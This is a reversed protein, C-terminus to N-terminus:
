QPSYHNYSIVRSIRWQGDELLWLHTFTAASTLEDSKGPYRAYFRHTGMQIAGYLQGDNNLPFVQLSERDLRRIPQYDLNCLGNETNDLFDAKSRIIGAQDHYFELDEHMLSDFIAVDCTNFGVDFMLSDGKQLAIFLPDTESLQAVTKSFVAILLAGLISKIINNM